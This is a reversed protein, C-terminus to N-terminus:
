CGALPAHTLIHAKGPITIIAHGGASVEPPATEGGLTGSRGGKLYWGVLALAAVHRSDIAPVSAIEVAGRGQQFTGRFKPGVIKRRQREERIDVFQLTPGLKAPMELPLNETAFCTNHHQKL